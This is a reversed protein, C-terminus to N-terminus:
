DEHKPLSSTAFCVGHSAEETASDSVYEVESDTVSWADAQSGELDGPLGNAVQEVDSARRLLYLNHLVFAMSRVDQAHIRQIHVRGRLQQLKELLRRGLPCGPGRLHVVCRRSRM